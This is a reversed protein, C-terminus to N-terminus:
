SVVITQLEGTGGPILLTRSVIALGDPILEDERTAFRLILGGPKLVHRVLRFVDADIRVARVTVIDTQHCIAAVEAAEQFRAEVTTAKTELIRAAERLFACKRTRSEVMTLESAGSEVAFPLAPSGGGTGIDAISQGSAMGSAALVPEVILRDVAEPTIPDIQLSTLNVTKNWHRLVDVYAAHKAIEKPMPLGLQDFRDSIAQQTLNKVM